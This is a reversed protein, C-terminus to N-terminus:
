QGPRYDFRGPQEDQVFGELSQIPFVSGDQHLEDVMHAAVGGSLDQQNGMGGIQDRCANGM